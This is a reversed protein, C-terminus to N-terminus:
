NEAIVARTQRAVEIDERAAIVLTRVPAGQASIECDPRATANRSEDVAVQYDAHEIGTRLDEDFIPDWTGLVLSAGDIVLAVPLATLGYRSNFVLRGVAGDALLEM